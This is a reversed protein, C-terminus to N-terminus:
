DPKRALDLRLYQACCDQAPRRCQGCVCEPPGKLLSRSEKNSLSIPGQAHYKIPMRSGCSSQHSSQDLSRVWTSRVRPMAFIGSQSEPKRKTTTGVSATM